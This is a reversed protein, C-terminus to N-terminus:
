HSRAGARCPGPLLPSLGGGSDRAVRVAVVSLQLRRLHFLQQDRTKLRLACSFSDRSDMQM